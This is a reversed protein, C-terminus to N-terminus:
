KKKGLFGYSVLVKHLRLIIKSSGIEVFPLWVAVGPKTIINIGVDYLGYSICKLVKNNYEKEIRIEQRHCIITGIDYHTTLVIQETWSCGPKPWIRM